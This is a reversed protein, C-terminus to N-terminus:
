KPATIEIRQPQEKPLFLHWANDDQDTILWPHTLYTDVNYSEGDKLEAYLIRKGEYNLWFVKVNSGSKNIFTIQATVEGAQSKAGKEEDPHRTSASCPSILATLIYFLSLLIPPIRHTQKM